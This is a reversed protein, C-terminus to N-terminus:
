DLIGGLKLVTLDNIQMYRRVLKLRKRPSKAAPTAVGVVVEERRCLVNRISECQQCLTELVRLAELALSELTNAMIAGESMLLELSSTLSELSTDCSSSHISRDSSSPTSNSSTLQVHREVSHEMLDIYRRLYDSILPLFLLASLDRDPLSHLTALTPSSPPSPQTSTGPASSRPRPPATLCTLQSPRRGCLLCQFGAAALSQHEPHVIRQTPRKSKDPSLKKMDKFESLRCSFYYNVYMHLNTLHNSHFTVSLVYYILQETPFGVVQVSTM